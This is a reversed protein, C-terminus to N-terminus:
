GRAMCGQGDRVPKLRAGDADVIMGNGMRLHREAADLVGPVPELETDFTELRDRQGPHQDASSDQDPIPRPRGSTAFHRLWLTMEHITAVLLDVGLQGLTGFIKRHLDDMAARTAALQQQGAPTLHHTTTRGHANRREILGAELLPSTIDSLSQPTQFTLDALRVGSLGSEAEIPSLVVLRSVTTCISGLVEDATRLYTNQYLRIRLPLHQSGSADPMAFIPSFKDDM